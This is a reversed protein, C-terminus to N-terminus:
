AKIGMQRSPFRTCAFGRGQIRGQGGSGCRSICAHRPADAVIKGPSRPPLGFMRMATSRKKRQRVRGQVVFRLVRGFLHRYGADPRTPARTESLTPRNERRRCLVAAMGSLGKGPRAVPSARASRELPRIILLLSVSVQANPHRIVTGQKAGTRPIPCVPGGGSITRKSIRYVNNRCVAGGEDM